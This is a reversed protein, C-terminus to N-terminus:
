KQTATRNGYKLKTEYKRTQMADNGCQKRAVFIFSLRYLLRLRNEPGLIIKQVLYSLM